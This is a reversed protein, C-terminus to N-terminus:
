KTAVVNEIAIYEATDSLDSLTLETCIIEAM